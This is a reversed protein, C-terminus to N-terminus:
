IANVKGIALTDASLDNEVRRCIRVYILLIIFSSLNLARAIKDISRAIEFDMSRSNTTVVKALIGFNVLHM